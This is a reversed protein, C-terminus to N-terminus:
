LSRRYEAPTMGVIGLFVRGFQTAGRFGVAAGVEAVTMTQSRLLNQAAAIRLARLHRVPSTGVSKKFARCFHFRSQGSLSALDSLSIQEHLNSQIFDLVLRLQRDPLGRSMEKAPANGSLKSIEMAVLLGMTEVYLRDPTSEGRLLRGFKALSCRLSEDEFYLMPSFNEQRFRASLEQSILEPNIFLAILSNMPRASHTWGTVSCDPPAFILKSRVDTANSRFGGDLHTEGDRKRIDLLALYFQSGRWLFDYPERVDIQAYEASFMDCRLRRPGPRDPPSFNFEFKFRASMSRHFCM